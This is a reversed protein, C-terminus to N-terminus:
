MFVVIMMHNCLVVDYYYLVALCSWREREGEQRKHVNYIVCLLDLICERKRVCECVCVLDESEFNM